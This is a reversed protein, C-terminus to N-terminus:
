ASLQDSFLFEPADHETRGDIGVALDVAGFRGPIEPDKLWTFFPQLFHRAHSEIILFNQGRGDHGMAADIQTRAFRKVAYALCTDLRACVRNWWLRSLGRAVVISLDSVDLDCRDLGHQRRVLRHRVLYATVVLVTLEDLEDLGFVSDLAWAHDVGLPCELRSGVASM